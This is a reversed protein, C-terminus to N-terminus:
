GYAPGGAYDYGFNRGLGSFDSVQASPGGRGYKEYLGGVGSILSGVGQMEAASAAADGAMGGSEGRLQAAISKADGRFKAAIAGANGSFEQAIATQEAGEVAFEGSIRKSLAQARLVRAKEEGSYLAKMSEMATQRALNGVINVVTSSTSAGGGSAAALAIARSEALQGVRKVDIVDRQAAAVVQGAQSELAQAELEAAAKQRQGARRYNAAALDGTMKSSAAEIGASRKAIESEVSGAYRAFAANSRATDAASEAGMLGLITSGAQLAVPLTLEFGSM